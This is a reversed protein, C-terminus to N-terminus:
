DFSPIPVPRHSVATSHKVLRQGESPRSPLVIGSYTGLLCLYRDGRDKSLQVHSDIICCKICELRDCCYKLQQPPSSLKGLEAAVACFLFLFTFSHCISIRYFLRSVAHRILTLM